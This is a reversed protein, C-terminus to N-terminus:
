AIVCLALLITISSKHLHFPSITFYRRLDDAQGSFNGYIQTSNANVLVKPKASLAGVPKVRNERAVCFVLWLSCFYFLSGILVRLLCTYEFAPFCTRGVKGELQDSIHRAHKRELNQNTWQVTQAHQTTQTENRQKRNLVTLLRSLFILFTILTRKLTKFLASILATFQITM